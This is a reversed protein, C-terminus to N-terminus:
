RGGAYKAYHGARFGGDSDRGPSDDLTQTSGKENESEEAAKLMDPISAPDHSLDADMQLIWDYDQMMASRFGEIVASGYGLKGKRHIVSVHNFQAALDDALKGTGDPSGDDIFLINLDLDLNLLRRTLESLNDRENYTPIIVVASASGNM